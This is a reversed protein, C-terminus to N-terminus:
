PAFARLAHLKAFEYFNLAVKFIWRWFHNSKENIKLLVETFTCFILYWFHHFGIKLPKYKAFLWNICDLNAVILYGLTCTACIQCFINSIEEIKFCYASFLFKRAFTSLYKFFKWFRLWFNSSKLFIKVFTINFHFILTVLNHVGLTCQGFGRLLMSCLYKFSFIDLKKLKCINFLFFSECLNWFIHGGNLYWFNVSCLVQIVHQIEFSNQFDIKFNASTKTFSKVFIM